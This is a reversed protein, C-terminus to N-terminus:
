PNTPPYNLHDAEDDKWTREEGDQTIYAHHLLTWDGSDELYADASVHVNKYQNRIKRLFPVIDKLASKTSRYTKHAKITGRVSVLTIIIM